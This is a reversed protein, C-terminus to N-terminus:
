AHNQGLLNIAAAVVDDPGIELMGQEPHPVRSHSTVSAANRLVVSSTGFPGNRVPNTPGFIAVVPIGLIAALHMPGTDGAIVLRARRTLAILESISTTLARAAGHSALETARALQEEGPGFNILSQLGTKEALKRAVEGYRDPPWQKAGWGAGPNLIAYSDAPLLKLKETVTKEASQDRPLEAAIFSLDGGVLAGALSLNQKVVHTGTAQVQRTYFMSAANERPQTFGYVVPAGSLRALIASRVAGQFDIAVDYQTGRMSQISNRVASWTADSFLAARWAHTDVTHVFDVLPRRESRPGCRTADPSCLLEAWREEIVWGIRAHPFLDRLAAVSPMAHLVDGMASLRVVLLRQIVPPASASKDSSPAQDEM